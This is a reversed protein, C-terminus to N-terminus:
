ELKCYERTMIYLEKNLSYTMNQLSEKVYKEEKTKYKDQVGIKSEFVQSSLEFIEEQSINNELEMPLLPHKRGQKVM